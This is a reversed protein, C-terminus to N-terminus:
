SNKEEEKGGEKNKPQFKAGLDALGWDRRPLWLSPGALHGSSLVFPSPWCQCNMLALSFQLARAVVSVCGYQEHFWVSM